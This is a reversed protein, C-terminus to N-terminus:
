QFTSILSFALDHAIGPDFHATVVIGTLTKWLIWEVASGDVSRGVVYESGNNTEIAATGLGGTAKLKAGGQNLADVTLSGTSPDFAETIDVHVGAYSYVLEVTDRSPPTGPKANSPMPTAAAFYVADLVAGSETSATLVHRGFAQEAAGLTTAGPGAKQPAGVDSAASSEAGGTKDITGAPNAAPVLNLHIPWNAASLALVVASTALLAVVAGMLAWRVRFARSRQRDSARRMVREVIDIDDPIARALHQVLADRILGDM